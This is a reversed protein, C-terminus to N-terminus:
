VHIPKGDDDAVTPSEVPSPEPSPPEVAPPPDPPRPLTTIAVWPFREKLTELRVGSRGEPLEMQVLELVPLQSQTEIELKVRQLFAVPQDQILVYAQSTVVLNEGDKHERWEFALRLPVHLDTPEPQAAHAKFSEWLLTQLEAEEVTKERFALALERYRVLFREDTFSM